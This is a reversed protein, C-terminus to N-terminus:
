KKPIEYLAWDATMFPDVEGLDAVLLKLQETQEDEPAYYTPFPLIEVNAKKYVADKIFVFNGEAGSVQLSSFSGHIYLRICFSLLSSEFTCPWHGIRGAPDIKNCESQKM